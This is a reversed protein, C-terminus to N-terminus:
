STNVTKTTSLKANYADGFAAVTCTSSWSTGPMFGGEEVGGLRQFTRERGYRLRTQGVLCKEAESNQELIYELYVLNVCEHGAGLEIKYCIVM